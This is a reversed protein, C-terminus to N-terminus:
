FDWPNSSAAGHVKRHYRWYLVALRDFELLTKARRKKRKYKALRCHNDAM